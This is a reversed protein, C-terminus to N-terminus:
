FLINAQRKLVPKLPDDCLSLRSLVEEITDNPEEVLGDLGDLGVMVPSVMVPSVMVPCLNRYVGDSNVKDELILIAERVSVAGVGVIQDENDWQVINGRMYNHVSTKNGYILCGVKSYFDDMENKYPYSPIYGGTYIDRTINVTDNINCSFFTHRRVQTQNRLCQPHEIYLGVEEGVERHVGYQLTENFKCKGTIVLQFEAPIASGNEDRSVQGKRKNPYLPGFIYDDENIQNNQKLLMLFNLVDQPNCNSVTVGPSNDFREDNLCRVLPRIDKEVFWKSKVRVKVKEKRQEAVLRMLVTRSNFNEKTESPHKFKCISINGRNWCVGATTFYVLRCEDGFRCSTRLQSVTHAFRCKDGYRCPKKIEVSKCMKTFKFNQALMKKDELYEVSQQAFHCKNLKCTLGAKQVRRFVEVLHACVEGTKVYICLPRTSNKEKLETVCSNSSGDSDYEETIYEYKISDMISIQVSSMDLFILKNPM